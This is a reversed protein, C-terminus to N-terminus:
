DLVEGQPLSGNKEKGERERQRAQKEEGALLSLSFSIVSFLDDVCCLVALIRAFFAQWM